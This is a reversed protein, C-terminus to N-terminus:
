CIITRDTPSPYVVVPRVKKYYKSLTEISSSTLNFKAQTLTNALSNLTNQANNVAKDNQKDGIWVPESWEGTSKQFQLGFRYWEGYKFTAIESLSKDLHCTYPYIGTSSKETLTKDNVFSFHNEFDGQVANVVEEPVISDETKLNGLFLTNDKQTITGAILAKGGIFLLQTPDIVDGSEGDDTYKVSRVNTVNYENWYVMGSDGNDLAVNGNASNISEFTETDYYLKIYWPMM